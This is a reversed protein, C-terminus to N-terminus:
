FASFAEAMAYVVVLGELVDPINKPCSDLPVSGYLDVDKFILSSDEFKIPIVEAEGALKILEGDIPITIKGIDPDGTNVQIKNKNISYSLKEGIFWTNGTTECSISTPKSGCSVLTISTFGIAFLRKFFKM